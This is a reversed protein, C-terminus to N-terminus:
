GNKSDEVVGTGIAVTCRTHGPAQGPIAGGSACGGQVLGVWLLWDVSPQAM